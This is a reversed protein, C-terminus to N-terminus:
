ADLRSKRWAIKEVVKVAGLIVLYDAFAIPLVTIRNLTIHPWPVYMVVPIHLLLILIITAWFWTHRRLDWRMMVLVMVMGVYICAPLAM